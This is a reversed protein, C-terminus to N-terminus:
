LNIPIRLDLFYCSLLVFTWFITQYSTLQGFFTQNSILTWFLIRFATFFALFKDAQLNFGPFLDSQIDLALFFTPFWFDVSPDSIFNVTWFVNQYSILFRLNTRYSTFLGLFPRNPNFLGLNSQYSILLGCFPRFQLLFDLFFNIHISSVLFHYWKFDFTWFVSQSQYATLLGPFPRIPVWFDVLHDSINDFTRFFTQNSTLLGFFLRIPFCFNWLVSQRIYSWFDM